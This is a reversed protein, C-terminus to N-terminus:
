KSSNAIKKGSSSDLYRVIGLAIARAMKTRYVPDALQASEASNTLYGTDVEVAPIESKRLILFRAKRVGRDVLPQQMGRFEDLVTRHLTQALKIGTEHHYTEIGRIEPRNDIGNAHISVFVNAKAQRSMAVRDDLAVYYDGNRTLKTAIGKQQLIDATQLAISLSVESERLGGYGIYGTDKGGNGPDIMVLPQHYKQINPRPLVSPAEKSLAPIEIKSDSKTTAIPNYPPAFIFLSCFILCLQSSLDSMTKLFHLISTACVSIGSLCLTNVYTLELV